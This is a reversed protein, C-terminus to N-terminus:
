NSASRGRNGAVASRLLKWYLMRPVKDDKVYIERAPVRMLELTPNMPGQEISSM